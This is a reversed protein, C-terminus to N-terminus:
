ARRSFSSKIYERDILSAALTIRNKTLCQYMAFQALQPVLYFVGGHNNNCILNNHVFKLSLDM